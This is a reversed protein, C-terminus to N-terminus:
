QMRYARFYQHAIAPDPTTTVQFPASNTQYPTWDVLNTSSQVIYQQGASGQLNVTMQHGGINVSTLTASGAVYSIESSLGSQDGKADNELVAFYYTTGFNLGSIVAQNTKGVVEYQSYNHSTTGYYIQFAAAAPDSADWSLVM